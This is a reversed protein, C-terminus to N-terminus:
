EQPKTPEVGAAALLQRTTSMPLGVVNTPCGVVAKIFPNGDQLGYGGAKGQWMGSEIYRDVDGRSMMRMRVASMVRREQAFKRAHHSVAVGTVVVHTTGSLLLLTRRAEEADEPKGLIRDGFAVVTDAALVVNDPYREAVARAKVRALFTALDVPLLTQPYDDEDVSPPVVAFEYGAERLLSQRRPSTSALILRTTAPSQVSVFPVISAVRARRARRIPARSM